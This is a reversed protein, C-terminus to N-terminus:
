ETLLEGLGILAHRLSIRESDNINLLIVTVRGKSTIGEIRGDILLRFHERWVDRRPHFLPVVEDSLPDVSSLDSGKHRNCEFCSFGLNSEVTTGGHKEARIHDIEHKKLSYRENLLGYECNGGAREIVERRLNEPIYTL